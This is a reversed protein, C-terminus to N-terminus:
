KPCSRIQGTALVHGRQNVMVHRSPGSSIQPPRSFQGGGCFGPSRPLLGRRSADEMDPIM